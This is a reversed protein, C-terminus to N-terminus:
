VNNKFLLSLLFFSFDWKSISLRVIDLKISTTFTLYGIKGQRMAKSWEYEGFEIINLFLFILYGFYILKKRTLIEPIM